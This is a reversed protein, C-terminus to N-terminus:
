PQLLNQKLFIVASPEDRELTVWVAGAPLNTRISFEAEPLYVSRTALQGDDNLYEFTRHLPHDLIIQHLLQMSNNWFKCYLLNTKQNKYEFNDSNPKLQGPVLIHNMWATTETNNLSDFAMKFNIFIIQAEETITTLVEVPPEATPRPSRCAHLIFCGIIIFIYYFKM